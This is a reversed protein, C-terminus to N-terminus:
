DAGEDPREGMLRERIRVLAEPPVGAALLYAEVGGYRRHLHQLVEHMVEAKTLGRAVMAEREERTGIEGNAIFVEDRPRLYESSLAYDNAITEEPVGAVSLLLPWPDLTRWAERAALGPFTRPFPHGDSESRMRRQRIARSPDSIARGM